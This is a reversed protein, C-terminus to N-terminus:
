GERQEVLRLNERLTSVSTFAIVVACLAFFVIPPWKGLYDYIFWLRVDTTYEAGAEYASFGTYLEYVGYCMLATGALLYLPLLYPNRDSPRQYFTSSM